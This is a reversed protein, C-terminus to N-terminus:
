TGKDQSFAARKVIMAMIEKITTWPVTVPIHIEDGNEDVSPITFKFEGSYDAKTVASPKLAERLGAIEADRERLATLLAPIDAYVLKHIRTGPHAAYSESKAREKIAELEANSLTM